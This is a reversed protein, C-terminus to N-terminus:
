DQQWNSKCNRLQMFHFVISSFQSAIHGIIQSDKIVVVTQEDVANEFAWMNM